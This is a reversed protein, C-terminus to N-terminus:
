NLFFCIEEDRVELLGESKRLILGDEKEEMMDNDNRVWFFKFFWLEICNWFNGINEVYIEEYDKM